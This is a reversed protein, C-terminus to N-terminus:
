ILVGGSAGRGMPGYLWMAMTPLKMVIPPVAPTLGSLALERPLLDPRLGALDEVAKLHHQLRDTRVQSVDDVDVDEQALHAVEVRHVGGVDLLHAVM